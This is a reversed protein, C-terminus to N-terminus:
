LVDHPAFEPEKSCISLRPLRDPCRSHVSLGARRRDRDGRVLVNTVLSGEAVSPTDLNRAGRYEHRWRNPCVRPRQSVAASDSIARVGLSSSLEPETDSNLKVLRVRPELEGARREFMPAMSRCPSCWPAWVDVLLPLDSADCHREFAHADVEHPHQDFLPKGCSGCRAGLAPREKPVRNIKLCHPCVIHESMQIIATLPLPGDHPRRCRPYLGPARETFLAAAM